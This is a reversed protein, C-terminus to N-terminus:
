PPGHQLALVAALASGKPDESGKPAMGVELTGPDESGKADAGAVGAWMDLSGNAIPGVGGALDVLSGNASLAAGAEDAPSGKASKAEAGRPGAGFVVASGNAAELLPLM